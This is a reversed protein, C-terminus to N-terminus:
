PRRTSSPPGHVGPGPLRGPHHRRRQARRPGRARGGRGPGRGGLRRPHGRGQDPGPGAAGRRRRRGRAGALLRAPREGPRDGPHDLADTRQGLSASLGAAAVLILIIPSKFQSLLLALRGHRGQPRLLSAGPPGATAAGRRIDPGAQRVRAASAGGRAPSELLNLDRPWRRGAPSSAPNTVPNM